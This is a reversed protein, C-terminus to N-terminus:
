VKALAYCMARYVEIGIKAVAKAEADTASALERTSDELGKKAKELDLQDLPFAEIVNVNCQSDPYVSVFGGSVFFKADKTNGAGDYRTVKVVGPKVHAMTPVHHALIGMEGTSAPVTAIKVPENNILTEHPCSLTFILKGEKVAKERAERQEEETPTAYARRSTMTLTPSAYRPAFATSRLGLTRSATSISRRM